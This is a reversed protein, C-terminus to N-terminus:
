TEWDRPEGVRLKGTWINGMGKAGWDRHEGGEKNGLWSIGWLHNETGPHEGFVNGLGSTRTPAVYPSPFLPVPSYPFCPYQPVYPSPSIPKPLSPATICKQTVYPSPLMPFMPVSIMLIHVYPSPFLPRPLGRASEGVSKDLGACSCADLPCCPAFIAPHM